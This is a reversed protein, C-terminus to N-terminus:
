PTVLSDITIIKVLDYSFVETTKFKSDIQNRDAGMLYIVKDGVKLEDPKAFSINAGKKNLKNTYYELQVKYDSYCIKHNDINYFGKDVDQLFYGMLTFQRAGWDDKPKYVQDMITFYPYLFMIILFLSQLIRVKHWKVDSLYKPILSFVLFIPMAAMISLMPIAPASYWKLKTKALSIILLYIISLLTSYQILRRTPGKSIAFSAFFGLLALTCYFKFQTTLLLDYYFDFKHEHKEITSLLRGGLENDYVAKLYGPNVSERALYYGATIGMFILLDIYFWKNRLLKGTKRMALGYIIVAPLFILGQVGKTLVALTLGTFFLHLFKKKDTEVWLFFCLSYLTIFLTLMADYDGTRAVHGGLHGESTILIMIAIFGLWYSKLYRATVFVILLCTIFGAIASPLRFSIEENGVVKMFFVQCWIMLPPKTNWMEPRGYFHTVLYNGDEQMEVANAVLRAEDWTRIPLNGLHLFYPCYLVAILLLIKLYSPISTFQKIKDSWFSFLVNGSM